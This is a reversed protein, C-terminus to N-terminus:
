AHSRTGNGLGRLRSNGRWAPGDHHRAYLPVPPRPRAGPMKCNRAIWVPIKRPPPTPGSTMIATALEFMTKGAFPLTGTVMEYFLVGLSWIDSQVNAREGRLVEPALYHITGVLRGLEMSSSRSLSTGRAMDARIRKALGFDLMKLSGQNTIVINSSKIDRHVIGRQHAHVLASAIRKTTHALLKPTLGSPMLLM